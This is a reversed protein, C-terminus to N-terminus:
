WQETPDSVPGDSTEDVGPEYMKVFRNLYVKPYEPRQKNAAVKVELVMDIMDPLFGGIQSPRPPPDFQMKVMMAKLHPMGKPGCDASPFVMQGTHKAGMIKCELNLRPYGEKSWEPVDFTARNVRVQYTGPTVAEPGSHAETNDYDDDFEQGNYTM